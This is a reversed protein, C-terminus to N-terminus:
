QTMRLYLVCVVDVRLFVEGGGESHALQQHQLPCAPPFVSGWIEFDYQEQYAVSSYKKNQPLGWILM